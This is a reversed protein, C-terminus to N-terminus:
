LAQHLLRRVSAPNQSIALSSSKKAQCAAASSRSCQRYNEYTKQCLSITTGTGCDRSEQTKRNDVPREAKSSRFSPLPELPFVPVGRTISRTGTKTEPRPPAGPSLCYEYGAPHASSSEASLQHSVAVPQSLPYCTENNKRKNLNLHRFADTSGRGRSLASGTKLVPAALKYRGAKWFTASAFPSEGKDGANSAGREKYQAVRANVRACRFSRGAM